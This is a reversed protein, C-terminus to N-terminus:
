FLKTNNRKEKKSGQWLMWGLVAAAAAGLSALIFGILGVTIAVAALDVLDPTKGTFVIIITVIMNVLAKGLDGTVYEPTYACASNILALLALLALTMKKNV